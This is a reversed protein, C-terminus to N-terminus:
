NAIHTSDIADALADVEAETENDSAGSEDDDDDDDSDVEMDSLDDLEGIGREDFVAAFADVVPDDDAFCNGNLEVREIETLTTAVADKILGAGAADIENYQLRLIRLNPFRGADLLAQGLVAGGRASLLCDGIALEVLEARWNAVVKALALAGKITFTNDQLDLRQLRQCQALGGLLLTEIGEQRIGNQYFRVERIAPHVAFCASWADMSGSELRNRGCIVSELAYPTGAAAKVAALQALSDAVKAGAIPGLGNNALVLHRLAVHQSLFASLPEIAALGLANDSLNITHLDPLTQLVPLLHELSEPIEERLRGTFMDALNAEQLGTKSKLAGALAKCAEVGLTNGSLNIERLESIADLEALFPAIDAASDLKLARGELSFTHSAM